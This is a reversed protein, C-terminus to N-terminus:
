LYGLSEAANLVRRALAALAVQDDVTVSEVAKLAEGLEGPLTQQNPQQLELLSAYVRPFDGRRVDIDLDPLIAVWRFPFDHGSSNWWGRAEQLRREAKILGGQRWSAWALCALTAGIYPALRAGEAARLAREGVSLTADVEGLRRYAITLYTLARSLLTADGLREADRATQELEQVAELQAERECLVLAFGLNFRAFAAQPLLAPNDAVVEVARRTFQVAEESPAYRSRALLDLAACVYYVSRQVPLATGEVVDRMGLVIAETHPGTKRAFYYSWFHGLQIEIWERVLELNDSSKRGGIREAALALSSTAADYEHVTWFSQAKKRLVRASSLADRQDLILLVWDYYRRAESHRAVQALLDALTEGLRPLLSPELQASSALAEVERIATLHLEIAETNAHLKAASRAASELYPLARLPEGASAWHHGLRALAFHSDRAGLPSREIGRAAAAHLSQRREHPISAEVAERLKDHVFRYRNQGRDELIQRAVLEELALADLGMPENELDCRFAELQDLELERGLVGALQLLNSASASLGDLRLRLLGLLSEPLPPPRSDRVRSERDLALLPASWGGRPNRAIVGRELAARLYEAAFFPNGESHRHLLEDLGEPVLESALMDRLMARTAQLDLRSLRVLSEPEAEAALRLSEDVQENRFTGLVMVRAGRLARIAESRLYALTLDDAWHLDDLVLLLPRERGLRELVETLSRFVRARALAHPLESLHCSAVAPLELLTAEYPALAALQLKLEESLARGSPLSCRDIVHQLFPIIPQLVSGRVGITRGGGQSLEVCQGIVVEMSAGVAVGGLENVVRTKGVGSEGVVYVVGGRGAQADALKSDLRTLEPGRGAIRPRYVHRPSESTEAAATSAGLFGTLAAILDEVYGIRKRPDKELLGLVLEDMGKPLETALESPPTPTAVLHQQHLSRIDHAEFPRRGTVMEYLICGLAYLDCRTDLLEGLIQEPAMYGPTGHRRREVQAVERLTTGAFTYLAAGFDVIVSSGDERFLLNKPKLDAHIVGEQHIFAVSQAVRKMVELADTLSDRRQDLELRSTTTKATSLEASRVDDSPYLKWVPLAERRTDTAAQFDSGAGVTVTATKADPMVGRQFFQTVAGLDPGEIYEMAYWLLGGANGSEVVRVVGPHGSRGLRSLMSVEKRMSDRQFASTDRAHKVALLGGTREHRCKTVVGAGGQGMVSLVVYPGLREPTM